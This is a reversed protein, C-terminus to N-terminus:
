KGHRAGKRKPARIGKASGYRLLRYLQLPHAAKAEDPHRKALTARVTGCPRPTKM